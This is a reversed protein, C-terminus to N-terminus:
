KACIKKVNSNIRAYYVGSGPLSVSFERQLIKKNVFIRGRVDMLVFTAGLPAKNVILTHGQVLLSFSALANVKNPIKLISLNALIPYDGQYAWFGSSETIGNTTNLIGAFDTSKMAATSLAKADLTNTSSASDIGCINTLGSVEKDFYTNQIFSGPANLGVVGGVYVDVSDPVDFAATSSYVNKIAAASNYGLAGGVYAKATSDTYSVSIKGQNFSNSISISDLYGAVGGVYASASTRVSMKATNSCNDISYAFGAVGGMFSYMSSSSLVGSNLGLNVSGRSYGVIGGTYSYAVNSYARNSSSAYTSVEGKNISAKILSTSYGVIGGGYAVGSNYSSSAYIEGTNNCDSITSTSYGTIGGAYSSYTSSTASVQGASTCNGITGLNYGVIGGAYTETSSSYRDSNSASISGFNSCGIISGDSYGAIGGLNMQYISKCSVIGYLICNKISGRNKGAVGGAYISYESPKLQIFTNRLIVNKVQGKEGVVGFLGSYLTHTDSSSSDNIFLGRIIKKNGDFVGQFALTDNIGIPNWFITATTDNKITDQFLVIDNDLIANITTKGANVEAAFWALEDASTIVYFTKGDIERTKEPVSSGGTWDAFANSIGLCFALLVLIKKM